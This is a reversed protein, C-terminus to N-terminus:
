YLANGYADYGMFGEQQAPDPQGGQGEQQQSGAEAIQQIQQGMADMREMLPAMPDAGGEQGAGEQAGDAQAPQGGEAQGETGAPPTEAGSFPRYTTRLWETFTKM